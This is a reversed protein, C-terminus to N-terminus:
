CSEQVDGSVIETLLKAPWMMGLQADLPDVSTLRGSYVGVFKTKLPDGMTSSGNSMLHTGYSRRIVPSGSMGPRSATDILIYQQAGDAVEPESAISGRKWVPLETASLGYPYGVVFVDMGVVVALDDSKLANIPFLEVEDSVILPIAVVDVKNGFHPHVLWRPRGDEDRLMEDLKVRPGTADKSVANKKHWLIQLRDPEAATPSLSKGTFPDKGTVVHWNTVLYHRGSEAWVFGTALGLDTTGFAQYLPITAISYKDVSSM